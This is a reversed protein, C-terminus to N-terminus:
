LNGGHTVDAFEKAKYEYAGIGSTELLSVLKSGIIVGDALHSVHKAQEISPGLVTCSDKTNIVWDRKPESQVQLYAAELEALPV